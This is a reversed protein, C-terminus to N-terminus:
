ASLFVWLPPGDLVTKAQGLPLYRVATQIGAYAVHDVMRLDDDIGYAILQVALANLIGAADIDVRETVAATARRLIDDDVLRWLGKAEELAEPSPRQEAVALAELFTPSLDDRVAIKLAESATQGSVFRPRKALPDALSVVEISIPSRIRLVESVLNAAERESHETATLLRLGTEAVDELLFSMAHKVRECVSSGWRLRDDLAEVFQRHKTEMM